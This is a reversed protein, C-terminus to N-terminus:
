VGVVQLHTHGQSMLFDREIEASSITHFEPYLPSESWQRFAKGDWVECAVHAHQPTWKGVKIIVFM